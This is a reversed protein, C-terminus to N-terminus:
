IFLYIIIIIIFLNGNIQEPNTSDNLVSVSVSGGPPTFKVANSLLNILVQRFRL